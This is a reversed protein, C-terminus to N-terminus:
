PARAAPRHRAPDRPLPPLPDIKRLRQGFRIETGREKLYAIAPDVLSHSLGERAICPRSHAEGRGLTEFIVPWLLKAAGEDAATNLASVALPEWLRRYLPLSTDFCDAVSDQADARWLGLAQLYQAPRSGPM